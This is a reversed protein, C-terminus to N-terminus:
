SGEDLVGALEELSTARRRAPAIALLRRAEAADRAESALDSAVLEFCGGARAADGEALAVRGWALLVHLAAARDDTRRVIDFAQRATRGASRLDGGELAAVALRALARCRLESQGFRLAAAESRRAHHVTAPLDGRKAALDALNLDLYPLLHVDVDEAIGLSEAIMAEAEDLRDDDILLEALNNLAIALGVQYGRERDLAIADRYHREAERRLGRSSELNAVARLDRSVQEPLVERSTALAVQLARLAEDHRGLRALVDGRLKLPRHRSAAGSREGLRLALDTAALAEILRGQRYLHTGRGCEVRMRQGEDADPASTLATAAETFLLEAEHFRARMDAYLSLADSAAALEGGWGARAAFAWAARLDAWEDDTAELASRPAPGVIAAERAALRRLFWRAHRAEVEGGAAHVRLQAEGFERIMPHLAIRGPAPAELWGASALAALAPPAVMAVVAAAAEDFAGRFVSLFALSTAEDPELLGWTTTMVKRLGAHRAEVPLGPNALLLEDDLSRALEDCSRFRLWGAALRIGLPHGRLAACIRLVDGAVADDLRFTPRARRAAAVFLRVAASDRDAGRPTAGPHELGALTVPQEGPHRSALRSTVLVRVGPAEALLEEIVTGLEPQLHEANDLVLLLERGRLGRTLQALPRDHGEFAVHAANAIAAVAFEASDVAELAVFIAEREERLRHDDSVVRALRTKGVGGPGLLTVWRHSGLREELLSREGERGVFPVGDDNMSGRGAAGPASGSRIAEVLERTAPTPELGLEQALVRRVIEFQRVALEPRGMRWTLAMIRRHVDEDLPDEEALSALLTLGDNTPDDALDHAYRLICGRVLGVVRAREVELWDDFAPAGPVSFGALVSRGWGHEPPRPRWCALAGADDGEALRREFSALDSRGRLRLRGDSRDEDIWEAGAASSRLQYLASRLNGRRGPGWLIEALEDRAVGREGRLALAYAVALPKRGTSRLPRGHWELRPVGLVHAELGTEPFTM